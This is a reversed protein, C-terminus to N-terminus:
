ISSDSFIFLQPSSVVVFNKSKDISSQCTRLVLRWYSSFLSKCCINDSSKLVMGLGFFTSNDRLISSLIHQDFCEFLFPPISNVSNKIRIACCCLGSSPKSSSRQGNTGCNLNYRNFHGRAASMIQTIISYYRCKASFKGTHKKLLSCPANAHM